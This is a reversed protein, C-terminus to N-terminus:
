TPPGHRKCVPCTLPKQGRALERTWYGTCDRCPGLLEHGQALTLDEPGGTPPRHPDGHSGTDQTVAGRASHSAVDAARPSAAPPSSGSTSRISPEDSFSGFLDRLMQQLPV